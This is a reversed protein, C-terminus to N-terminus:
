IKFKQIHNNLKQALEAQDQAVRAVEEMAKSSEGISHAIEQSSGTAEEVSAAVTEIASNIQEISAAMEQSTSSFEMVLMGVTDADKAYQAGTDVLVQYDPSVKEDLFKLVDAANLSLNQFATQVKSIVSQIGTVTSASQEALKKVEEAVVSFGRGQEGARAAEIAANLALLNTQAAIDSITQAMVQIEHVVEGEQIAKTIGAHKEKYIRNAVDSSEQADIKMRNARNEIERVINNGDEARKALQAASRGIEVGSAMVEESAASSEEMGAVIEQIASNGSETQATVEEASASLQESAASMDQATALVDGLLSKMSLTIDKFACALTGIEDKRSLLGESIEESFDGAAFSKAKEVAQAIPISIIRGIVVSFVIALLASFIGLSIVISRANAFIGDSETQLNDSFLEAQEMMANLIEMNKDRDIGAANNLEIALAFENKRAAEIANGRSTRYSEVISEYDRLLEKERDMLEFTKYEAVLIQNAQVLEEIKAVANDIDLPNNTVQYQWIVRQMEISAQYTNSQIASLIEIPRQGDTHMLAVNNNVKGLNVLGIFGLIVILVAMFIFSVLLKNMTKMNIFWKM